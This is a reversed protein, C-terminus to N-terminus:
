TGPPCFLELALGDPDKFALGSGYHADVIEGREIGLEDLRGAWAALEARGAVGFAVHDLGLRRPTPAGEEIGEPFQHLGLLTDGLAFVAHRFPGTDEDLVPDAGILRTYWPVSTDLDRVTLATHTIAGLAPTVVPSAATDPVTM